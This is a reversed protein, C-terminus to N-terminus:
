QGGRLELRLGATGSERVLVCAHSRFHGRVSGPFMGPFTGIEGVGGRLSMLWTPSLTACVCMGFLGVGRPLARPSGATGHSPRLQLVDAHMRGLWVPAEIGSGSEPRRHGLRVLREPAGSGPDCWGGRTSSARGAFLCV